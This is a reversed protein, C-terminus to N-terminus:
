KGQKVKTRPEKFGVDDDRAVRENEREDREANRNMEELMMQKMVGM